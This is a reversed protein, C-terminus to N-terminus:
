SETRHELVELIRATQDKLHDLDTMMRKPPFSEPMEDLMRDCMESCRARLAPWGMDVVKRVALMVGAAFLVRIALRKMDLKGEARAEDQRSPTPEEGITRALVPTTGPARDVPRSNRCQPLLPDGHELPGIRYPPSANDHCPLQAGRPTHGM